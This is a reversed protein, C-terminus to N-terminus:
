QLVYQAVHTAREWGHILLHNTFKTMIKLMWPFFIVLALGVLLMKPIVSLTMEQIQTLSQFISILLGIVLALLLFPASLELATYLTQTIIQTIYEPTM